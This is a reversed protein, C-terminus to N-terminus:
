FGCFTSSIFTSASKEMNSLGVWSLYIVLPPFGAQRMMLPGQHHDNLPTFDSPPETLTGGIIVGPTRGLGENSLYPATSIWGIMGAVLVVGVITLKNKM